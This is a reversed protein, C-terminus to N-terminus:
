NTELWGNRLYLFLLAFFTLKQSFLTDSELSEFVIKITNISHFISLIKVYAPGATEFNCMVTLKVNRDIKCKQRFYYNCIM